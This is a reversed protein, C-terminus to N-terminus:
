APKAPAAGLARLLTAGYREALVPGVGPVCALAAGDAPSQLALRVLTEPDFLAGGWAGRRAGVASVLRALREAAPRPLRAEVPRQGCRDCGACRAPREGFYHLLRGRRCGGERLYARMVALRQEAHARRREVPGWDPLGRDPRLEARLRDVSAAVGSPLRSRAAADAWAREVLRRDPFTVDLQRRHITADDPHWLAVCRSLRGDRGARGAEQYYSEPTPPAVWHVVLRVDPKDIGMGFACTAVVVDFADALFGRLVRSRREAALGAHYCAAGFGAHRLAAAVRETSRRTPAYVLALGHVGDLLSLLRGFRERDDRVRLAGFWLNPRDFSGVHIAAERRRGATGRGLGLARIIDDRVRPTASGTLAVTQPEGLTYRARRLARYSPRFDDGWESICHAEDIALLAPVGAARRLEPAARALREPSLYLLRLAGERVRGLVRSREDLTLASHLAAAPIGRSGAAAVQDQMLSILPSVVITLGGLALAPVQFCVSKGAGTPLVALADRGALIAAVVDRQGPRFASYGFHHELLGRAQALSAM